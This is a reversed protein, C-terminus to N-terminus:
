LRLLIIRQGHNEYTSNLSFSSPNIINNFSIVPPNLNVITKYFRTELRNESNLGKIKNLYSFKHSKIISNFKKIHKLSFSDCRNFRSQFSFIFDKDVHSFFYRILQNQVVDNWLKCVLAISTPSAGELMAERLIISIADKPFNNFEVSM